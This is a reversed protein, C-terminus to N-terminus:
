IHATGTARGICTDRPFRITSQRASAPFVFWGTSVFPGTLVTGTDYAGPSHYGVAISVTYPSHNCFHLETGSAGVPAAPGFLLTTVVLLAALVIANRRM